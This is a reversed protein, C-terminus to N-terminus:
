MLMPRVRRQLPRVRAIVTTSEAGVTSITRPIRQRTTIAAIDGYILLVNSGTKITNAPAARPTLRRQAAYGGVPLGPMRIDLVRTRM